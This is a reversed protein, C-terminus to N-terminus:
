YVQIILMNCLSLATYINLIITRRNKNLIIEASIVGNIRFNANTKPATSLGFARRTLLFGIGVIPPRPIKTVRFM